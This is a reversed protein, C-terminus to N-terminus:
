PTVGGGDPAAATAPDPAPVVPAPAETPAPAAPAVEPSAAAAPDATAPVAAEEPPAAAEAFLPDIPLAALVSIEGSALREAAAAADGDRAKRYRVAKPVPTELGLGAAVAGVKESSSRKAIQARLVTNARELEDVKGAAGSTSASLGLGWVNLAVIGGLLVGLVAIWIRGRTMRVVLGSDAMGGVAGAAGEVAHLPIMAVGGPPTLSRRAPRSRAAGSRASKAAGARAARAGRPKAPKTTAARTAPASRARTSRTPAARSSRRPRGKAPASARRPRAVAPAGM